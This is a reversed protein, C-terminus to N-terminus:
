VHARGIEPAQLTRGNAFVSNAAYAQAAPTYKMDPLFEFNPRSHDVKMAATMMVVGVLLVALVINMRNIM